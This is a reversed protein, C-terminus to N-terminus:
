AASREDQHDSVAADVQARCDIDECATFVPRLWQQYGPSRRSYPHHTLVGCFTCFYPDPGPAIEHAPRAAPDQAGAFLDPRDFQISRRAM